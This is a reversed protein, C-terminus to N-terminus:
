PINRNESPLSLKGSLEKGDVRTSYTVVGKEGKFWHFGIEAQSLDEKKLPMVESKTQDDAVEFKKLYNENNNGDIVWQGKKPDKDEPLVRAKLKVQEGAIVDVTENNVNVWEESAGDWYLIQLTAM